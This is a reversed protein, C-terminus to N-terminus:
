RTHRQNGTFFFFLSYPFRSHSRAVFYAYWMSYLQNLCVSYKTQNRILKMSSIGNSKISQNFNMDATFSIISHFKHLQEKKKMQIKHHSACSVSHM